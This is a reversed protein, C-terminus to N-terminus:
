PSRLSTSCNLFYKSGRPVSGFRLIPSQDADNSMIRCPKRFMGSRKPMFYLGTCFSLIRQMPGVKRLGLGKELLFERCYITSGIFPLTIERFTYLLAEPGPVPHPLYAYRSTYPRLLSSDESVMDHGCFVVEAQTLNAQEILRVLCDKRVYDDSDLFMIYKGRALSLGRNRAASVGANAQSVVTHVFRSKELIIIGEM